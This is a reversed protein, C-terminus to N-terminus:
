QPTIASLDRKEDDVTYSIYGVLMEDFTQDGFYLTKDPDPNFENQSSNDFIANVKMKSGAPVSIPKEYSYFRQWNFNYGPVNLM